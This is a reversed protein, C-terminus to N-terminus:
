ESKLYYTKFKGIVFCGTKKEGVRLYCTADRKLSQKFGADKIWKKHRLEGGVITFESYSDVSMENQLDHCFEAHEVKINHSHKLMSEKLAFAVAKKWGMKIETNVSM